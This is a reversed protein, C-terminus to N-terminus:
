ASPMHISPLLRRPGTLTVHMVCDTDAIAQLAPHHAAGTLGTVGTVAGPLPPMLNSTSLAQSSAPTGARRLARTTSIGGRANTLPRNGDSGRDM